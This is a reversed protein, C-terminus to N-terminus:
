LDWPRACKRARPSERIEGEELESESECGTESLGDDDGEQGKTCLCRAAKVRLRTNLARLQKKTRLPRPFLCGQPVVGEFRENFRDTLHTWTDSSNKVTKAERLLWAKEEDSFRERKQLPEDKSRTNTRQPGLWYRLKDGRWLNLASISIADSWDVEHPYELRTPKVLNPRQLIIVLKTHDVENITARDRDVDPNLARTEDQRAATVAAPQRYYRRPTPSTYYQRPTPSSSSGPTSSLTSQRPM